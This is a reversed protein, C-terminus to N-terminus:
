EAEEPQVLSILTSGPKPELPEAATFLTLTNKDSVLFLPLAKNAYHSQFAEYDFEETLRTKKIVGGQALKSQLYGYTADSSFAIRGRLHQEATEGRPARAVTPPLQYVGARGFVERFHWAALSNVESSPTLALFRGIGGLDL